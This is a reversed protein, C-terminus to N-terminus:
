EQLTPPTRFEEPAGDRTRAWFSRFGGLFRELASPRLVFVTRERDAAWNKLVMESSSYSNSRVTVLSKRFRVFDTEAFQGDSIDLKGTEPPIVAPDLKCTYLKPSRDGRRGSTIVSFSAAVRVAGKRPHQPAKAEGLSRQPPSTM